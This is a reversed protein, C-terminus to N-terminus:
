SFLFRSKQLFVIIFNKKEVLILIEVSDIMQIIHLFLALIPFSEENDAKSSNRCREYLNSSYNVAERLVTSTLDILPKVMEKCSETDLINKNPETPM